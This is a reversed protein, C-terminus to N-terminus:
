CSFTKQARDHCELGAIESRGYFLKKTKVRSIVTMAIKTDVNKESNGDLSAKCLQM